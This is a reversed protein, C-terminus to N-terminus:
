SGWSGVTKGRKPRNNVELLKETVALNYEWGTGDELGWVASLITQAIGWGLIRRKEQGLEDSLLQIRREVLDGVRPRKLLGPAPNRLMAATEYAPEAAVGKPDIALWPERQAQLINGHHLDGHILTSEKEMSGILEDFLDQATDIFFTPIPGRIERTKHRYRELGRAWDRLHPFSHSAPLPRWLRRMVSALVRTAKVDDEVVSLPIGPKLLETLLAANEPDADLLQSSGRGSYIRLAEVETRIEPDTPSGLKIV